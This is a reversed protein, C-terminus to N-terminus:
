PNISQEIKGTENARLSEPFQFAEQSGMPEIQSGRPQQKPPPPLPPCAIVWRKMM